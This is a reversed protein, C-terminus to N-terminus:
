VKIKQLVEQCTMEQEILSDYRAQLNNALIIEAYDSILNLEDETYDNRPQKQEDETPIKCAKLLPIVESEDVHIYQSLEFLSLM